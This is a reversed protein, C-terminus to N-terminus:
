YNMMMAEFAAKIENYAAEASDPKISSWSLVSTEWTGWVSDWEKFLPRNPAADYSKLVAAVIEKDVDSLDSNAYAEASVNELIKGTQKFLDIAFDPNVIEEIMAVSLEMQDPNEEIRANVALGWGSKWHALPSGNVTVQTIPLIGLDAGNGARESHGATGWPGDLRLANTNGTTFASDMYGWTASSDWADTGAEDHAKWYNYLATFVGQKKADLDQWETTLDSYFGSDNKGLLEINATNTLAIGFWANFAPILMDEPGLETFEIPKSLDLNIAKANATNAFIILTEINMPFALYDDGVKLNGGLGADYNDYGGVAEAISHADIAALIEDQAFGALRDAPIAFLDAVDPNSLDTNDLVSMHDFAGTEILNITANPYKELVRAKAAEYHAMWGTEAQVSITAKLDSTTPEESGSASVSNVVENKSVNGNNNENNGCAVMSFVMAVILLLSLIRKM